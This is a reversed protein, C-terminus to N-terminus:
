QGTSTVKVTVTCSGQVTYSSGDPIDLTITNEGYSLESADIALHFSKATIKSVASSMGKIAVSNEKIVLEYGYDSQKNSLKIDSTKIAINRTVMKEIAVKVNVYASEKTVVVGDPLYKSVDLTTEVDETCGSVDVDNIELQQIDKIVAADGGIDITEPVFTIQSVAYGDAPEGIVAIKIPINKTKYVPVTVAISVEDYTLTEDSVKEGDSTVFSPTCNTTIDDKADKIDVTVEARDISSVVSSPGKVTILNPAAVSNGATYGSAVEGTTVVKVPVSVSKEAELEVSLVNDVVTISIKKAISNSNATVAIPVANTISIKSMDATAKFDSADLNSIVSKRGKIVVDVKDGSTITFLQNQSTIADTNVLTVPINSITKTVASDDINLVLLWVLFGLVVSLLKLGLNSYIKPKNKRIDGNNETNNRM